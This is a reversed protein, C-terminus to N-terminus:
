AETKEPGDAPGVLVALNQILAALGQLGLLLFGLPMLAKVLWRAELGGPDPSIEGVLIHARWWGELPAVLGYLLGDLGLAASYYDPPRPNDFAWSRATFGTGYWVVIGCIPLLMLVIGLVNILAQRRRSMRAYFLDVRVHGEEKLTYGGALLFLAGFLHWELEQMGVSSANFVYRAVVQSVTVLMLAIALWGSLQGLRENLADIRRSLALLLTM